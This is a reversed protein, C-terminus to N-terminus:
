DIPPKPIPPPTANPNGGMNRIRQVLSEMDASLRAQEKQMEALKSMIQMIEESPTSDADRM